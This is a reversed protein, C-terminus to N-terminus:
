IVIAAGDLDFGSLEGDRLPDLVACPKTSYPPATPIDAINTTADAMRRGLVISAPLDIGHMSSTNFLLRRSGADGPGSASMAGATGAISSPFPQMAITERLWRCVTERDRFM